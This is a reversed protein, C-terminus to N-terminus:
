QCEASSLNFSGGKERERWVWLVCCNRRKYKSEKMFDASKWHWAKM